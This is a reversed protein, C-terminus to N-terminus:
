FTLKELLGRVDADEPDMTLVDRLEEAAADRDGRGVLARNAARMASTRLKAREEPDKARMELGKQLTDLLLAETSRAAMRESEPHGAVLKQANYFQSAAKLFNRDDYHQRGRKLHRALEAEAAPPVVFGVAKSSSQGSRWDFGAAYLALLGGVIMVAVVAFGGIAATAVLRPGQDRQPATWTDERPPAPGRGNGALPRPSSVDSSPLTPPDNIPGDVFEFRFETSGVRVRDGHRLCQERVRSGNVFTGNGSGHDRLWMDRGVWELQAHNRSAAPDFLIVDRAESRGITLGSARVPYNAALRQGQLTTLRARRQITRDETPDPKGGDSPVEVTDEDEVDELDQTLSEVDEAQLVNFALTFPEILVEDGTQVAQREVRIGRFYTGNGSGLDEVFVGGAQILLRAHRRSVGIDTLVLQNDEARGIHTVGLGFAVRREAEGPRSVVVEIQKVSM